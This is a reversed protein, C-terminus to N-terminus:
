NFTSVSCSVRLILFNYHHEDRSSGFVFLDSRDKNLIFLEKGLSKSKSISLLKNCTFGIIQDFVFFTVIFFLIYLIHRKKM